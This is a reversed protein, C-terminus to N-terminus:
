PSIGLNSPIGFGQIAGDMIAIARSPSTSYFASHAIATGMLKIRRDAGSVGDSTPAEGHASRLFDM